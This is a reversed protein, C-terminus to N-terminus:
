RVSLLYELKKITGIIDKIANKGELGPDHIKCKTTMDRYDRKVQFLEETKTKWSM